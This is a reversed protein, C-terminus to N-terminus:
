FNFFLMLHLLINFFCGFFANLVKSCNYITIIHIFSYLEPEDKALETWLNFNEDAPFSGYKVKHPFFIQNHGIFCLLFCYYVQSWCTAVFLNTYVNIITAFYFSVFTRVMLLVM